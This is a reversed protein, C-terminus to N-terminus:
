LSTESPGIPASDCRFCCRFRGRFHPRSEAARARAGAGNAFTLDGFLGLGPGHWKASRTKAVFVRDTSYQVSSARMCCFVGVLVRFLFYVGVLWDNDVEAHAPHRQVNFIELDGSIVGWFRHFSHRSRKISHRPRRISHCSRNISHRYVHASHLRPVANTPHHGVSRWFHNGLLTSVPCLVAFTPNM